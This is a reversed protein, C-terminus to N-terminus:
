AQSHDQAFCARYGLLEVLSLGTPVACAPEPVDFYAQYTIGSPAGSGSGAFTLAGLSTPIAKLGQFSLAPVLDTLEALGNDDLFSAELVFLGVGDCTELRLQGDALRALRLGAIAAVGLGDVTVDAALIPM